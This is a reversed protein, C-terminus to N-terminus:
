PRRWLYVALGVPTGLGLVVFKFSFNFLEFKRLAIQANIVIQSALHTQYPTPEPSGPLIDERLRQLYSEPTHGAIHGFYLPNGGTSTPRDPITHRLRAGLAFINVLISAISCLAVFAGYLRIWEPIDPQTAIRSFGVLIAGNLALFATIKTEAMRQMDYCHKLAANLVTDLEIRGPVM